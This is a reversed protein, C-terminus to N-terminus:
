TASPNQGFVATKRAQQPTASLPPLYRAFADKFWDLKYGHPTKEGIRIVRPRVGFPELLRALQTKTIPFDNKWEGWPRDEMKGLEKCLDESRLMDVGRAEFISRIDALLMVRYSPDEAGGSLSLAVKRATDPWHGGAQDAIAILPRWNDAARDHLGDPIEPDTGRLVKLHDKAWRAAKRALEVLGGIRDSRFRKVKEDPRRRRMKMEISRDQLTPSLKGIKAVALPAWTSFRRPEHTDGECRLVFAADRIHGSNLIGKFEGRQDLFTDAEDMLLIPRDREIVRFVVAPTVNSALLPRPILCRLISLATTKGCRPVPSTLALRPSVAWADFTHTFLVWLALAEAAGIPLALYRRFAAVLEDLLAAGDVPEPWLKPEWLKLECGARKPERRQSPRRKEAERDSPKSVPWGPLKLGLM